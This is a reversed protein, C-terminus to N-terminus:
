RTPSVGPATTPSPTSSSTATSGALIVQGERLGSLIEVDSVGVIGLSVDITRRAGGDLYEVFRRQGSSRVARQPVLLSDAKQQLVVAAQASVGFPPADSPWSVRLQAVKGVGGPGDVIGIITADYAADSAGEVQVSAQQGVAIQSVDSDTVDASVIREGPKALTLVQMDRDLPDGSRVQVATVVGAFPAVLTTAALDRELSEAQAQDQEQSRRLVILDIVGTDGDDQVPDPEVRTRDLATQAASVRDQADQLEAQTPRNNVDALRNMAEGLATRASEVGAQAAAVRDAPPGAALELYHAEAAQVATKANEVTQNAASLTMQDPGQRVTELHETATQVGAAAAQMARRAIEVESPPPGQRLTNLRNQADQLAFQASTIASDRAARANREADKSGKGSGGGSNVRTAQATRLALTARQVERDAAAMAAPDGNVLRALDLQARQLTSQASGLALEATRVDAPDPGHSLRDFDAQARQAALRASWVQQDATKLELDSPGEKARALDTQARELGGRASVVGAEAMRRDAAPAGAKVRALDDQARRLGAEADATAGQRQAQDAQARQEAQRQRAQAQNQMQQVRLGDLELRSRAATLDRQIDKTEAQLITQGETVSDGPKVPVTDVRGLGPFTVPVEELAAVRGSLPLLAAIPGRRVAVTQPGAQTTATPGVTASADLVESAADAPADTADTSAGSVGFGPLRPVLPPQLQVCASIVSVVMIAAAVTIWRRKVSSIM